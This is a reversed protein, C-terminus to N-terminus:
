EETGDLVGSPDAVRGQSILSLVPVHRTRVTPLTLSSGDNLVAQVRSRQTIALGQLSDWSLTRSSLFTRVFLGRSTATTRTRIIWVALALPVLLLVQLGPAAAAIPVVCM